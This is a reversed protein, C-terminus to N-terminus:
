WGSGLVIDNGVVHSLFVTVLQNPGLLGDRIGSEGVFSPCQVKSLVFLRMEVFVFDIFVEGFWIYHGVPGPLKM